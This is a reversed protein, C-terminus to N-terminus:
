EILEDTNINHDNLIEHIKEYVLELADYKDIEKGEMSWELGKKTNHVIDWLAMAMDLSKVARKHAMVDDPDSLDYELTAKAM